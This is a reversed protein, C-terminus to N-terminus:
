SAKLPIYVPYHTPEYNANVHAVNFYRTNGDEVIGHAEHIHGFVHSHPKQKQVYETLHYAGCAMGQLNRDLRLYPPGHSVLINLGAPIQSFKDRLKHADGMFAWNGITPVWPTGYIKVGEITTASDQLYIWPLEKPIEPKAEFLLDHNGAVAVIYRANLGRLWDSFEGKFFREQQELDRTKAYDGALILLDCPAIEPLYGHLDSIALVKMM